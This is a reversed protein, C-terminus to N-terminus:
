FFSEGLVRYMRFTKYTIPQRELYKWQLYRHFYMSMRFERFPDGSLFTKVQKVCLRFGSGFKELSVFFSQIRCHQPAPDADPDTHKQAEGSGCRSWNTVLVSEAGFGAVSGEMM